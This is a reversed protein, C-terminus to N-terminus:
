PTNACGQACFSHEDGRDCLEVDCHFIVDPSNDLFKFAEMVFQQETLDTTNVLFLTSDVACGKTMITYPTSTSNHNSSNTASCNSIAVVLDPDATHLNAKAWINQGPYVSVVGQGPHFTGNNSFQLDVNHTGTGELLFHLEGTDVAIPVDIGEELTMVCQFPIEVEKVRSIIGDVVEEQSRVVNKYIITTGIMDSLTLHEKHLSQYHVKEFTLVMSDAGCIVEEGIASCTHNDPGLQLERAPCECSYGGDMNVCVDSCGGNQSHCENVDLTSLSCLMATIM